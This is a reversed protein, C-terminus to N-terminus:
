TGDWPIQFSFWWGVNFYDVIVSSEKILSATKTIALKYAFSEYM